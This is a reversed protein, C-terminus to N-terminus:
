GGKKQEERAQELAEIGERRVAEAGDMAKQVEALLRAREADLEAARREAAQVASAERRRFEELEARLRGNERGAEDESAKLRGIAQDRLRAAEAAEDAKELLAQELEAVRQALREARSRWRDLQERAKDLAGVLRAQAGDCTQLTSELESILAANAVAERHFGGAREELERLSSAPGPEPAEAM